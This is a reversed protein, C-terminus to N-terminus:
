GKTKSKPPKSGKTQAVVKIPGKDRVIGAIETITYGANILDHITEEGEDAETKKPIYLEKRQCQKM